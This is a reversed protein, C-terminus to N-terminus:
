KVICSQMQNALDVNILRAKAYVYRHFDMKSDKYYKPVAVTPIDDGIMFRVVLQTDHMTQYKASPKLAVFARRDLADNFADHDLSHLITGLFLAECSVTAPMDKRFKEFAQQFVERVRVIFNIHKSHPMLRRVRGHEPVGRKLSAVLAQRVATGARESVLRSMLTPSYDFGMHNYCVTIVAMKRLYPDQDPSSPDLGWNAYAHIRPHQIMSVNYALLVVTDALSLEIDDLSAQAVRKQTLNLCVKMTSQERFNIRKGDPSDSYTPLDFQFDAIEEGAADCGMTQMGTALNNVTLQFAMQHMTQISPEAIWGWSVLRQAVRLQIWGWVGICFAALGIRLSFWLNQPLSVHVHDMNLQAAGTNTRPTVAGVAEKGNKSLFPSAPWGSAHDAKKLM